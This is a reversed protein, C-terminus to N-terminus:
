LMYSKYKDIISYDILATDIGCPKTDEPIRYIAKEIRIFDLNKCDKILDNRVYATGFVCLLRNENERFFQGLDSKYFKLLANMDSHSIVAVEDVQNNYYKVVASGPTETLYVIRRNNQKKYEGIFSLAVCQDGINQTTFVITSDPYSSIIRKAITRGFLVAKITDKM